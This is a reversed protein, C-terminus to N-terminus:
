RARKQWGHQALWAAIDREGGMQFQLNRASFVLKRYGARRNPDRDPHTVYVDVPYGGAGVSPQNKPLEPLGEWCGWACGKVVPAGLQETQRVQRAFMAALDAGAWARSCVDRGDTRCFTVVIPFPIGERALRLLSQAAPACNPSWGYVDFSKSPFTAKSAPWDRTALQMPLGIEPPAQPPVYASILGTSRGDASGHAVYPIGPFLAEFAERPVDRQLANLPAPLADRIRNLVAFKHASAEDEAAAFAAGHNTAQRTEETM